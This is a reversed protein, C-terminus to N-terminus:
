LHSIENACGCAAQWGAKMWWHSFRLGCPLTRDVDFQPRSLGQPPTVKWAVSHLSLSNGSSSSDHVRSPVLRAEWEGRLGKVTNRKMCHCINPYSFLLKSEVSTNITSSSNQLHQNISCAVPKIRFTPEYHGWILLSDLKIPLSGEVQKEPFCRPCYKRM